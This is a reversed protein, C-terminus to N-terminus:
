NIQDGAWLSRKIDVRNNLILLKSWEKAQGWIPHHEMYARDWWNLPTLGYPRRALVNDIRVEWVIKQEEWIAM